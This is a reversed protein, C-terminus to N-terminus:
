AGPPPPPFILLLENDADTPGVVQMTGNPRVWQVTYRYTRSGGRRQPVRWAFPQPAAGSFFKEVNTKVGPPAEPYELKLTAGMFGAATFDQLVFRVEVEFLGEFRDGVILSRELTDQWEDANTTGDKGFRTVRYRYRAEATEDPRFFTWAGSTGSGALEITKTQEAGGPPTYALEVIIKNYRALPDVATVSVAVARAVPPNVVLLGEGRATSDVVEQVGGAYFFTTHAKSERKTADRPHIPVIASPEAQSLLVTREGHVGATADDYTLTSQVSQVSAWDISGLTLTVPFVVGVVRPDIDLNRTTTRIWDSTAQVELDGIAYGSKYTAVVQYELEMTKKRDMFFEYSGSDGAQTLVVEKTDKPFSGDDRVGYRMKVVMSTVGAAALDANTTVTGALKEFFPDNLDVEKIRGALKSSGPLLRISGQPAATRKAAGVQRLDYTITQQEEQSLSRLLYAAQPRGARNWADVANGTDGTGGTGTAPPTGGTAGTATPAPQGGVRTTAPNASTGQVRAGAVDGPSGRGTGAATIPATVNQMLSAAPTAAGTPTADSAVLTGRDQALVHGPQLGPRFFSWTALEKALATLRTAREAMKAPDNDLYDVSEIKIHGEKQLKEFEADLDAKFWLTNMTFRNRLYQYCQRFEITIKAEYAPMLGRYDLDYIVAVQSAGDDELSARMLLAGEHSLEISFVTRNDGYLSPHAAGLIKEVFRPGRSEAAGAGEEGGGGGELGPARGATAGLASIRVEGREFPVPTLEVDGHVLSGLQGKIAELRAQPVGLDVTMTLFGGGPRDGAHFDPNDTIDRRYILLQFMPQGGEHTLHPARPMYYFRNPTNFDRFLTVGEIELPSDLYLM